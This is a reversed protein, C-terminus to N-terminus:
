GTEASEDQEEAAPLSLTFCSGHRGSDARVSGHHAEAIRQVLSLGLGSGRIQEALARRGRYFPEFIHSLDERAIGPGRDLVRIDIMGDTTSPLAELRLWRSRGSHKMANSILNGLATRLASADGRIPRLNQDIRVEATFGNEEISDQWEAMTEDILGEVGLPQSQFAKRGSEIGALTLSQELMRALKRGEAQIAAGYKRVTGLDSIVGDALNEAASCIVSAPTRLEHSIGAVFEMQQSALKQARRTSALVLGASIGLLGLIGFGIAMNRYRTADVLAQISGKRHRVSLRWASDRPVERSEAEVHPVQHLAPLRTTGGAGPARRANDPRPERPTRRLAGLPLYLNVPNLMESHGDPRELVVHAVGPESEFVVQGAANGSTVTALFDGMLAPPLHKALLGPFVETRFAARDVDLVIILPVKGGSVGGSKTIEFALICVDRPVWSPLFWISPLFGARAQHRGVEAEVGPFTGADTRQWARGDWRIPNEHGLLNSSLVYLQGFLAPYAAREELLYHRLSISQLLRERVTALREAPASDDPWPSIDDLPPLLLSISRIQESYDAALNQVSAHLLTELRTRDAEGVEGIWRYQLIALSILLAVLLLPVILAIGPRSIRRM